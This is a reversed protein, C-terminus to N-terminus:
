ELPSFDTPKLYIREPPQALFAGNIQSERAVKRWEPDGGFAKWNLDAQERSAHHVLYILTNKSGPQDFATWYFLNGIGHKNFLSTTHDRFRENLLGLKGSNAVYTRLEYIGDPEKIDNQVLKSYDTAELFISVPKSALLGQFKPQDLVREWDKDNSFNVWNRYAAYRSQHKLIYIFRRLKKAPGENPTWYGVSELGHKKFITDTHERFRQILNGFRGENASYFRLEYVPGSLLRPDPKLSKESM